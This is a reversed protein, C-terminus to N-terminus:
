PSTSHFLLQKGSDTSYKKGNARGISLNNHADARRRRAWDFDNRGRWVFTVHPNGAVVAPVSMAIDPHGTDIAAWRMVASDPHFSLPALLAAAVNPVSAVPTLRLGGLIL